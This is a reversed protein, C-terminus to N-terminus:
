LAYDGPQPYVGSSLQTIVAVAINTVPTCNDHTVLVCTALFSNSDPASGYCYNTWTNRPAANSFTVSCQDACGTARASRVPLCAIAAMVVWRFRAHARSM